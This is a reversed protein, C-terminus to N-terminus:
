RINPLLGYWPVHESPPGITNSLVIRFSLCLGSPIKIKMSGGRDSWLGVGRTITALVIGQAM